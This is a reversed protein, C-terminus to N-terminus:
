GRTRPKAIRLTQLLLRFVQGDVRRFSAAPAYSDVVVEAGLKYVHTSRVIRPHGAITEKARVQVAPAGGVKTVATKIPAFTADRAKAAGVLADLAAKLDVKTQPLPETRPYRWVAITAGGSQVTTVLPPTGKTVNWGGPSLFTIGQAPYRLPKAGIPPGPAATDVVPHRPTGCGALLVSVLVLIPVRRM